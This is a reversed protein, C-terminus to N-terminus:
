VLRKWAIDSPKLIAIFIPSRYMLSDRIEPSSWIFVKMSGTTFDVVNKAKVNFECANRSIVLNKIGFNLLCHYIHNIKTFWNLARIWYNMWKQKSVLLLFNSMNMLNNYTFMMNHKNDTQETSYGGSHRSVTPTSAIGPHRPATQATPNCHIYVPEPEVRDDRRKRSQPAVHGWRRWYHLFYRGPVCM